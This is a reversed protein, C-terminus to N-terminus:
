NNSFRPMTIFCHKLNVIEVCAVFHRLLESSRHGLHELTVEALNYLLDAVVQEDRPALGDCEDDLGRSERSSLNTSMQKKEPFLNPHCLTLGWGRSENAILM